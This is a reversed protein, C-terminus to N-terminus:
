FLFGRVYQKVQQRLERWTQHKRRLHESLAAPSVACWCGNSVCVLVGYARNLQVLHSLPQLIPQARAAQPEAM